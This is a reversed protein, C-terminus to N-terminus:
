FGYFDDDNKGMTNRKAYIFITGQTAAKDYFNENDSGLRVKADIFSFPKHSTIDGGPRNDYRKISAGVPDYIIHSTEFINNQIDPLITIGATSGTIIDKGFRDKEVFVVSRLIYVENGIEIEDEYEVRRTNLKQIGSITAPLREFNYPTRLKRFNLHQFRRNVYFILVNKSFIVSQSKPVLSGDEIYYQPQEMTDTLNISYGTNILSPPLRVTIMQISSVNQMVSASAYPSHNPVGFLPITSVITPRLSFASLLRRLIAGEDQHYMLDPADYVNINCNDIAELFFASEPGYYQGKRLKLVNEWVRTQLNIRNRLDTIASDMDCVIDNPDTIIDYLLEYDPRTKIPRGEHKLKVIGALNAHLMQRDFIDFLPVFMAVLISHVHHSPTDIHDNYDGTIAEIACDNYTLSQLLIQAHLSKSVAYRELIQNLIPYESEHIKLGSSGDGKMDDLTKAMRTRPYYKTIDVKGTIEQEYIKKFESFEDDSLGYKCKYKLAKQLVKSLPYNQSGYRDRILQAFKKAKKYVKRQRKQYEDLIEDIFDEDKYKERLKQKQDCTLSTKNSKMLKRVEMNLTKEHEDCDSTINTSRHDGKNKKEYEM